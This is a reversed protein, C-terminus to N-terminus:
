PEPLRTGDNCPQVHQRSDHEETEKVAHQIVTSDPHTELLKVEERITVAVEGM